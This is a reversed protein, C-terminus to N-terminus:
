SVRQKLSTDLQQVSPAWLSFCSSHQSKRPSTHEPHTWWPCVDSGLDMCVPRQLKLKQGIWETGRHQSQYGLCWNHQCATTLSSFVCSKRAWMIYQNYGVHTMTSSPIKVGWVVQASISSYSSNSFHSEFAGSRIHLTNRRSDVNGLLAMLLNESTGTAALCSLSPDLHRLKTSAEQLM